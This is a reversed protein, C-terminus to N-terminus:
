GGGLVGMIEEGEEPTVVMELLELAYGPVDQDIGAELVGEEELFHLRSLCLLYKQSGGRIVALKKQIDIEQEHTTILHFLLRTSHSILRASDERGSRYDYLTDLEDSILSVIRGIASPHVALAKGVYASRTMNTLLLIIQLRLKGVVDPDVKVTSKPLCPVEFLPYTLRDIIHGVNTAPTMVANEPLIGGFSDKLIGTSLIRIMWEFDAVNQNPSLMLLVFDWRMQKWFRTIDHNEPISGLAALHMLALCSSVNIDKDFPSPSERNFRPIAVLDATKQAIPVLQDIILPAIATTKLELAFQLLDLILYIPTYYEDELCKSWLQIIYLCFEAPVESVPKKSGIRPLEGLIQSSFSEGSRTPLFFKSFAEMTRPETLQPRHQLMATIFDSRDDQLVLKELITEDIISAKPVLAELTPEEIHVMDLAGASPSDQVKRKRKAARSPTGSRGRFKSPSVKSPSLVEIEDDDFGDRFPMPPKKKSPTNPADKTAQANLRRVRSEEFLDQKTFDRETAARRAAIEAAEREKQIKALQEAHLKEKAAQTREHEKDSKEMKGRLISIEGNKMLAEQELAKNKEQLEQVLKRLAEADGDAVSQSQQRSVSSDERPLPITQLLHDPQGALEVAADNRTRNAIGSDGYRQQRFQERQVVPNPNKRHAPPVVAPASRAEDVVVTDDLDEDDFDDGYDSSPSPKFNAKQTFTIANNELETLADPPLDDLFDDDSFNNEGYENPAM